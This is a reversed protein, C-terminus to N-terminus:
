ALAARAVEGLALKFHASRFGLRGLDESGSASLGLRLGKLAERPLVDSAPM